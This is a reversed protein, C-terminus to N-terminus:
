KLKRVVVYSDRNVGTPGWYNFYYSFQAYGGLMLTPKLRIRSLSNHVGGRAPALQNVILGRLMGKLALDQPLADKMRDFQRALSAVSSFLYGLYDKAKTEDSGFGLDKLFDLFEKIRARYFEVDQVAALALQVSVDTGYFPTWDGDKVNNANFYNLFYAYAQAFVMGDAVDRQDVPAFNPDLPLALRQDQSTGERLLKLADRNQKCDSFKPM